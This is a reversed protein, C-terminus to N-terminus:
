IRIFKMKVMKRVKMQVFIEDHQLFRVNLLPRGPVTGPRLKMM